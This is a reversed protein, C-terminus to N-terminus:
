LKKRKKKMYYGFILIQGNDWLQKSIFGLIMINLGYVFITTIGKFSTLPTVAAM